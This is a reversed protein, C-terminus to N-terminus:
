TETSPPEASEQNEENPFPMGINSGCIFFDVPYAGTSKKYIGVDYTSGAIPSSGICLQGWYIKLRDHRGIEGRRRSFRGEVVSLVKCCRLFFSLIM